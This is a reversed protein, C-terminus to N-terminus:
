SASNLNLGNRVFPPTVVRANLPKGRVEVQVHVGTEAPVRALAISCGLSPSFTGSTV